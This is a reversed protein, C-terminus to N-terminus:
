AHDGSGLKVRDRFAIAFAVMVVAAAVAFTFWFPKWPFVGAEATLAAAVKPFALNGVFMGAGYTLLAILGQASARLERPAVHDTYLQGTVFFFDYCIGHLVVALVLMWASGAGAAFLLYRAVWAAMGGILMTKVGFRALLMPMLLMFGIESMQGFTMVTESGLGLMAQIGMDSIYENAKAYYVALPICVLFSALAFIAFSPSKLLSVADLGLLKAVSVPQGKAKPPCHPLTFSYIGLIASTAAALLFPLNTKGADNGAADGQLLDAIGGPLGGSALVRPLISGVTIGAAIWGITGWVRVLPFQRRPESLHDFSVSNVLALTPMYCLGAALLLWYFSAPDSARAVGYLLGAGVLHLVGLVIQGPLFRDAVLGVFLPAVIAALSGTGYANGIISGLDERGTFIASLYKGMPVMWSGWLFFELFMMVGLRTMALPARPATTPTNM